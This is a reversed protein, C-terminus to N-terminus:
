RTRYVRGVGARGEQTLVRVYYSGAALGSLDLVYPWQKLARDTFVLAGLVDHIELDVTGRPDRSWSLVVQGRTPNPFLTLDLGGNVEEMGDIIEYAQNFGQTFVFSGSTGSVVVLDGMTEEYTYNGIAVETGTSAIVDRELTQAFLGRSPVLLSLSLGILAEATKM